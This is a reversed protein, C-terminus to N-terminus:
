IYVLELKLFIYQSLDSSLGFNIVPVGQRGGLIKSGRGGENGGKRGERVAELAHTLRVTYASIHEMDGGGGGCREVEYSMYMCHMGM